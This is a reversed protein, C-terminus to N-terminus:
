FGGHDACRMGLKTALRPTFAASHVQLAEQMQISRDLLCVRNINPLQSHPLDSLVHNTSHPLFPVCRISSSFKTKKVIQLQHWCISLGRTNVSSKHLRGHVSKERNSAVNLDVQQEHINCIEDIDVHLAERPGHKVAQTSLGKALRCLRYKCRALVRVM